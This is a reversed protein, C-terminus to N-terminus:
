YESEVLICLDSIRSGKWRREERGWGMDESQERDMIKTWECNDDTGKFLRGEMIDVSFFVRWSEAKEVGSGSLSVMVPSEFQVIM